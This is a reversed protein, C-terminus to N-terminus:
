MDPVILGKPEEGLQDVSHQIAGTEADYVDVRAHHGSLAFLSPDDDESVRITGAEHALSIKNVREGTNTNYVWVQTSETIHTWMKRQDLLVYLRDKGPHVDAVEWGGPKFHRKQEEETFLHWPDGPEPKDGSIDVPFVKGSYTIFYLEGDDADYAPVDMTPEEVPKHFPDTRTTSVKNGDKDFTIQLLSADRCHMIVRRDSAAWAYYCNKAPISNLYERNKMDVIGVGSQPNFHYYIFYRGNPTLTAMSSKVMVLFRNDPIDVSDTQSLTQADYVRILGDRDGHSYQSYNTDALYLESADESWRPNPLIGTDTTGLFLGTEGDVYHHQTVTEFAAQDGVVMTKADPKPAKLVEPETRLDGGFVGPIQAQEQVEKTHQTQEDQAQVSAMGTLGFVLATASAMAAGPWRGLSHSVKKLPNM